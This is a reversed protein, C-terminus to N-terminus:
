GGRSPSPKGMMVRLETKLVKGYNNKPLADLYVYRKPRKFRAISALCHADLSADDTVAGEELVVCAVVIEGWDPDPVGIASVERVNPHTLLAEEVERPYINTGGSIIVDKSRDSLTLFGDEDLRGVDGTRLWGDKLTEANAKPNNWYGLMVAAGKAEIEGTEGSPLPSGEANTIRVQMVSQATGVSALRELYRPHDTRGHWERSLATITMPSEGQGYIQVFRQGMTEIADRIDATYMPGGGYIITRLGEGDEGRKKAADVLRRVMTPAAFLVVNDLQRGLNLVEDPDFGGSEPVVHRGGMRVHPFNYLGAGHSIPAAYLSADQPTAQDVDALYCLSMAVLNGHSLMVGKPRGTTGSTYFLWALDNAERPLPAAAGEGDRMTRYTESDMSLAPMAAPWDSKAEALADITDDSVFTLKAGADGCIWAAERGHLKANIPIAVAGIWWIGYLCELYQTCNTAFLGVRDGPAIGYDRALGAGVSAARRAFTAYDADLDFGTLLAPAHPRLRATAVLWEAVNM